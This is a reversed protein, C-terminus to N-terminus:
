PSPLLALLESELVGDSEAPVTRWSIWAALGAVLCIIALRRTVVRLIEEWLDTLGPDPRRAAWAAAVRHVFAADHVASDDPQPNHRAARILQDLMRDKANM